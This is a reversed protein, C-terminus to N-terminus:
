ARRNMLVSALQGKGVLGVITAVDQADGRSLMRKRRGRRIKRLVGQGCYNVVKYGKPPAAGSWAMGDCGTAATADVFGGTRPDIPPIDAFSQPAMSTPASPLLSGAVGGVAQRLIHGWDHAM